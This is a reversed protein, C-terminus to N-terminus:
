SSSKLAPVGLRLSSAFLLNRIRTELLFDRPSPGVAVVGYVFAVFDSVVRRYAGGGHANLFEKSKGFLRNLSQRSERKVERDFSRTM